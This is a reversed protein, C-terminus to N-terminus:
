FCIHRNFELFARMELANSMRMRWGDTLLGCLSFVREMYAQSAPTSLLDESLPLICSFVSWFDLMNNMAGTGGAEAADTLYRAIRTVATEANQGTSAFSREQAMIKSSLFRFRSLASSSATQDENSLVPVASALLGGCEQIIYTKAAHLLAVQDPQMLVPALSPDLLRAAAPLRNFDEATPQM